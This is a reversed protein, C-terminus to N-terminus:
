LVAVKPFHQLRKVHTKKSCALRETEVHGPLPQLGPVILKVVPLSAGHRYLDAAYAQFGADVLRGAIQPVPLDPGAVITGEPQFAPMSAEFLSLRQWIEADAAGLNKHGLRQVKMLVIRNGVEMQLLEMLAKIAAVPFSGAAGFGLAVAKGDAASSIACVAPVDGVSQLALFRTVRGTSRQRAKALLSQAGDLFSEPIQLLPMGGQWWLAVADREILEFLASRVADQWTEGAACGLSTVQIGSGASPRLCLNAPVAMRHGDILRTAVLWPGSTEGSLHDLAARESTNLGSGAPLTELDEPSAFQAVTEAIEGLCRVKAMESDLDAAGAPFRLGGATFMAGCFHAGPADPPKLSFMDDAFQAFRELAPNM